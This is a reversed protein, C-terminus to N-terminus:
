VHSDKNWKRGLGKSKTVNLDSYSGEPLMGIKGVPPLATIRSDRSAQSKISQRESKSPKPVELMEVEEHGLDVRKDMFPSGKVGGETDSYDSLASGLRRSGSRM